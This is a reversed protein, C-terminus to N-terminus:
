GLRWGEPAASPAELVHVGGGADGVVLQQLGSGGGAGASGNFACCTVAVDALFFAEMGGDRCRWVCVLCDQSTAALMRSDSSFCVSTVAGSRGSVQIVRGSGGGGSGSPLQWLLPPGSELLTLLICGDPSFMVDCPTSPVALSHLREGTALSWVTVTTDFACTALLREDASFCACAVSDTHGQLLLRRPRCRM